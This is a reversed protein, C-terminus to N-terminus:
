GPRRGHSAFVEGFLDLMARWAHEAAARDYALGPRGARDAREHTFSHAAGGYVIMRWDVGAARMEQEFAARHEATVHPDEAGVCVLVKGRIRAADEPHPSALGPHFGVVAKLDAGTRALELVLLGGLCYGIAAVRAPDVQPQAVLLDLGAAVLRRAAAPDAALAAVRADISAPEELVTGGGHLDLALAVYGLGALRDARAAQHGDLGNAEPAILVAPRTGAAGPGADDPVALRGIMTHGDVEYTIEQTAV